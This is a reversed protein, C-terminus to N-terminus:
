IVVVVSFRLSEKNLKHGSGGHRWKSSNAAQAEIEDQKPNEVSIIIIIRKRRLDCLYRRRKKSNRQNIGENEKLRKKKEASNYESPYLPIRSPILLSAVDSFSPIFSELLIKM